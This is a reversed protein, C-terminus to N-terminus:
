PRTVASGAAATDDAPSAPRTALYLLMLTAAPLSVATSLGCGILLLAGATELCLLMPSQSSSSPAAWSGILILAPLWLLCIAMLPGAFHVRQAQPLRWLRYLVCLVCWAIVVAAAAPWWRQRELEVARLSPLSAFMSFYVSAALMYSLLGALTFQRRRTQPPRWRTPTMRPDFTEM